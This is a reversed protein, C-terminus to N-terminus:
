GAMVGGDIVLEAGTSFRSERPGSKGKIFCDNYNRAVAKARVLWAHTQQM